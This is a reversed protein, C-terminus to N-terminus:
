CKASIIVLGACVTTSGWGCWLCDRGVGCVLGAWVVSLDRGCPWPDALKVYKITPVSFFCHPGTVSQCMAAVALGDSSLNYCKHESLPSQAPTSLSPSIRPLCPQKASTGCGKLRCTLTDVQQRDVQLRSAVPWM